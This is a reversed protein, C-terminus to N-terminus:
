VGKDHIMSASFLNKAWLSSLEQNEPLYAADDKDGDESKKM